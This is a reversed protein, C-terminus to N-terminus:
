CTLEWIRPGTRFLPPPRGLPASLFIGTNCISFSPSLSALLAVWHGMFSPGSQAKLQEAWGEEQRPLGGRWFHWKNPILVLAM